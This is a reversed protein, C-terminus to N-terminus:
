VTQKNKKVDDITHSLLEFFCDADMVIIPNKIKKCKLILLWPSNKLYGIARKKIQDIDKLINWRESSKCEINRFRFIDAVYNSLIIDPGGQGMIRPKIEKNDEYGWPINLLDSIKQCVFNQLWRAKAKRSKVSITM